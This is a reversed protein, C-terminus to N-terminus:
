KVVVIDYDKLSKPIKNNTLKNTTNKSADEVVIEEYDCYDRPLVVPEHDVFNNTFEENQQYFNDEEDIENFFINYKNSNNNDGEFDIFEDDNSKKKKIFPGNRKFLKRKEIVPKDGPM